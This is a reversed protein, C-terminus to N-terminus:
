GLGLHARQQALQPAEVLKREPVLPLPPVAYVHDGLEEVRRSRPDRLGTREHRFVEVKFVSQYVQAGALAPLGPSGEQGAAAATM